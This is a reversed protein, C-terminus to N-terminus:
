IYLYVVVQYRTTSLADTSANTTTQIKDHFDTMKELDGSEKEEKVIM